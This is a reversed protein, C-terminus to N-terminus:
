SSEYRFLQEVDIIEDALDICEQSHTIVILTEIKEKLYSLIKISTNLDLASTPEDLILVKPKKLVARLINLRQKEGGSFVKLYENIDDDLTLNKDLLFYQLDFVSLLYILQDDSYNCQANYILNERLSGTFISYNQGVFAVEDFIKTSYEKTIDINKYFLKGTKLKYAGLMYNILTSKGSGTKGIIAYMKNKYLDLNVEPSLKGAIELGANKFSFLLDQDHYSESNLQDKELNFYSYFKELAVINGALLNIQQSIMLSPTTLMMIYSSIMVMDGTTIKGIAFLKTSVLLFGLMFLFIFSIQFIMLCAIKFHSNFSQEVFTNVNRKFNNVEFNTADNVKIEYANNIKELFKSNLINKISYLPEYYRKSKKNILVSILFLLFSAFIFGLSFYVSINISLIYTIFFLQLIVPLFVLLFAFTIMSFANSARVAEANFIGVDIKDQKTKTLKLYNDLSAILVTTEQKAAILGSLANKIWDITQSLLWACCYSIVLIYIYNINENKHTSDVILKIFYPLITTILSTFVVLITLLVLHKRENKYFKNSVRWMEKYAQLFM